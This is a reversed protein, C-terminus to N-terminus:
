NAFQVTAALTRGSTDLRDFLFMGALGVCIVAAAAASWRLVNANWGFAFQQAFGPKRTAVTATKPTTEQRQTSIARRCPICEHSHDELLLTRATSLKGDLYAPILSQFDDCGRIHEASNNINMTNELYPMASLNDAAKQSVREWVRSASQNILSSDIQEDRINRAAAEIIADLEQKSHKM